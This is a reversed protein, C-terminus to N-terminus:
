QHALPVPGHGLELHQTVHVGLDQRHHLGVLGSQKTFLKASVHEAPLSRGEEEAFGGLPGRQKHLREYCASLSLVCLGVRKVGLREVLGWSRGALDVALGKRPQGIGVNSKTGDQFGDDIALVVPNGEGIESQDLDLLWRIQAVERPNRRVQGQGIPALQNGQNRGAVRTRLGALIGADAHGALGVPLFALVAGTQTDSLAHEGRVLAVM